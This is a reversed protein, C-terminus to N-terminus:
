FAFALSVRLFSGSLDYEFAQPAQITPTPWNAPVTNMDIQAPPNGTPNQNTRQANFLYRVLPLPDYRVDGPAGVVEVRSQEGNQINALYVDTTGELEGFDLFNYGGDLMLSTRGLNWELGAFIRGSLTSKDHTMEIRQFEYFESTVFSTQAFTLVGESELTANGLGAGVHAHLPLNPDKLSFRGTLMISSFSLAERARISGDTNGGVTFDFNNSVAGSSGSFELGALIRTYETARVSKEIMIAFPNAISFDDMSFVPRWGDFPDSGFGGGFNAGAAADYPWIDGSYYDNLNTIYGNLDDMGQINEFGTSLRISFGSLLNQSQAVGVGAVLIAIACAPVFRAM